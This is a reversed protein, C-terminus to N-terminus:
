AEGGVRVVLKGVHRRRLAHQDGEAAGRLGRRGSILGCLAVRAHPNLRAFVADMLEGGVNEFDVDIGDPTAAKLQEIRRTPRQRLAFRRNPPM